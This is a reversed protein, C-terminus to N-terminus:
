MTKRRKFSQVDSTSLDFWEGGKRKEKFRNHWYGEIGSPDDTKIKHILELKEPLLIKLQHQRMEACTSHGIKYHKGSKMLYVFGYEIEQRETSAQQKPKTKAAAQRCIEVVQADVDHEESYDLVAQILASKNGFRAFTNHSPFDKNQYGKMRREPATPFHGLEQILGVLKELLFDDPYAAQMEPPNTHGAEAIADSWRIWYKGRWDSEKIQTEKEFRGIGLPRGGNEEATRRIESLIHEKDM